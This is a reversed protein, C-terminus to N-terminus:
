QIGGCVPVAPAPMPQSQWTQTDADYYLQFLPLSHREEPSQPDYAGFNIRYDQPPLDSPVAFKETEILQQGTWWWPTPYTQDFPQIDFQGWVQGSNDILEIFFTYDVTLFDLTQWYLTLSVPHHAAIQNQPSVDYAQLCLNPVLERKVPVATDSPAAAIPMRDLLRTTNLLFLDPYHGGAIEVMARSHQYYDQARVPQGQVAALEALSRYYRAKDAASRNDLRTLLELALELNDLRTPATDIRVLNASGFRWSSYPEFDTGPLATPVPPAKDTIYEGPHFAIPQWVVLWVAGSQVFDTRHQQAYDYSALTDSDAHLRFTHLELGPVLRSLMWVCYAKARDSVDFDHGEECVIIDEASAVDAVVTAMDAWNIHATTQRYWVTSILLLAAMGAVLGGQLYRGPKGYQSVWDLLTIFGLAVSMLFAPQLYFLFRAYAYFAAHWQVAAFIAGFPGGLWVLAAAFLYPRQRSLAVLGVLGCMLYIYTGVGGPSLPGMLRFVQLIPGADGLHIGDRWGAFDGQWGENNLVTTAHNYLVIGNLGALLLGVGVLRGLDLRISPTWTTRWGIWAFHLGLLLLLFGFVMLGGFLHFYIIAINALTFGVWAGWHHRRVIQWAFFLGVLGVTILGIYGRVIVSYGIHIPSVALLLLTLLAVRPGLWARGLRYVMPLGVMGVVITTWRMLFLHDAQPSAVHALASALVHNNSHYTHFIEALPLGVFRELTRLEDVNLPVSLLNDLRLWFALWLVGICVWPKQLVTM